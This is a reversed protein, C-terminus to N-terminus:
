RAEVGALTAGARGPERDDGLRAPAAARRRLGTRDPAPPPPRQRRALRFRRPLRAGRRRRHLAPERARRGLPRPPPARRHPAHGPQHPRRQGVQPDALAARGAHRRRLDSGARAARRAGRAGRLQDQALAKTPYLYLARHKPERALADLVPLNFALTKGSATGTTVILHRGRTAALWAHAQHSYLRDIGHAALAQVVRPHLGPPPRRARADGRRSSPSTRSSTTRRSSTTGPRSTSAAM